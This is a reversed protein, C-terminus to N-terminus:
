KLDFHNTAPGSTDTGDRFPDFLYPNNTASYSICDTTVGVSQSTVHGDVWLVNVSRNHRADLFGNDATDSSYYPMLDSSGRKRGYSTANTIADAVLITESPAAIQSLKATNEHTSGRSSGGGIYGRNYAYDIRIYGSSSITPTYYGSFNFLLSPCDLVQWNSLHGQEILVVPWCEHYSVKDQVCVPFYENFDQVYMFMALGMQKLNNICKAQRAKERAQALAPLLMAALIAIIAIVVLLEILTFGKRLTKM